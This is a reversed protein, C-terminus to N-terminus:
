SAYSAYYKALIEKVEVENAIYEMRLVRLFIERNKATSADTHWKTSTADRVKTPDIEHKRALGITKTQAEQSYLNYLLCKRLPVRALDVMVVYTHKNLFPAGRNSYHTTKTASTLCIGRQQDGSGLEQHIYLMQELSLKMKKPDALEPFDQRMSASITLARNKENSQQFRGTLEGKTSIKRLDDIIKAASAFRRTYVGRDDQVYEAARMAFATGALDGLKKRYVPRKLKDKDPLDDDRVRYFGDGNRYFVLIKWIKEQARHYVGIGWLRNEVHVKTDYETKNLACNLKLYAGRVAVQAKVLNIGISRLSPVYTHFLYEHRAQESSLTDMMNIKGAELHQRMTRQEIKLDILAKVAAAQFTRVLTVVGKDSIGAVDDSDYTKPFDYGTVIFDTPTGIM